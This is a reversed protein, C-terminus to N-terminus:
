PSVQAYPALRAIEGRLRQVIAANGSEDGLTLSQQKKHAIEGCLNYFRSTVGYRGNFLATLRAFSQAWASIAVLYHAQTMVGLTVEGWLQKKLIQQEHYTAWIIFIFMFFWGIWDVISGMAMGEFGSLMAALTNHFSHTFIALGFGLVPAIFKVFASRNLRATALGIGTFATYFPHQWGVLIVRVFALFALGSWGAEQYGYTYIYYVNETAAFGLATIGAYLIGDLVSDFERRFLLFVVLVALGKLGEEVFPAIVSGTALDSATTSGTFIYFGLGLFTNIIFASGAAVVAGWIFVGGLLLKPEKEYRDLWYLIYAFFLMPVFGLFLSVLLGM